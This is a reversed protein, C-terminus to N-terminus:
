ARRENRHDPLLDRRIKGSETRPIHEISHIRTPWASRTLAGRLLEELEATAAAGPAWVVYLEVVEGYLRHPRGAAAADRVAPHALAAKEVDEPMINEGGRIIVNKLRGRVTLFGDDSLVGLDGTRLWGDQVTLGYANAEGGLYGLMLYEGRIWIEGKVGAPCPRGDDDFVAVENGPLARGVTGRRRASLSEMTSICTTETLGYEQVVPIGFAEEFRDLTSEAVPAAGCIFCRVWDTVPRQPPPLALLASLISPVADVYEIRHEEVARWLGGLSALDGDGLTYVTSGTHFPVLMNIVIGNTHHLPMIGLLRSRTISLNAAIDRANALLGAVGLMVGKPTSTTGSTFVILAIREEPRAPLPELTSVTGRLAEPGLTVTPFNDFSLDFDTVLGDVDATQAVRRAAEPPQRPNVPVITIGQRWLALCVLTFLFHSRFSVLVRGSRVPVNHLIQGALHSCVASLEAFSVSDGGSGDVLFLRDGHSACIGDFEDPRGFWNNV